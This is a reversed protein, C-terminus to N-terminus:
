PHRKRQNKKEGGKSSPVAEKTGSGRLKRGDISTDLATDSGSSGQKRQHENNLKPLYEKGHGWV